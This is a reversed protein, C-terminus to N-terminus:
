ASPDGIEDIRWVDGDQLEMTFGLAPVVTPEAVTIPETGGTEALLVLERGPAILRPRSAWGRTDLDINSWLDNFNQAQSSEFAPWLPHTPREQALAEVLAQPNTARLSPHAANVTVWENAVFRRLGETMLPWADALNQKGLVLDVFRKAVAVPGTPGYHSRLEDPSQGEDM